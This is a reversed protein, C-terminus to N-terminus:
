QDELVVKPIVTAKLKCPNIGETWNTKTTDQSKNHTERAEEQRCESKGKNREQGIGPDLRSTGTMPAKFVGGRTGKGRDVVIQKYSPTGKGGGKTSM